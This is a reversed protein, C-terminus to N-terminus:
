AYAAVLEAQLTELNAAGMPSTTFKSVADGTANGQAITAAAGHQISPVIADNKFSDSAAQQYSSFSGLDIDTRAPISGKVKNFAEQGEKSSIVDLWAKGAVPNPGGTTLGYSDALFDYIGKTGPSPAWLYDKGDVLERADLAAPVWDGMITFVANGDLAKVLAPEWDLDGRDANTYSMLKAFSQLAKTV